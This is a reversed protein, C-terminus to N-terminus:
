EKQKKHIYKIKSCQMDFRVKLSDLKAKTLNLRETEEYSAKLEVRDQEVKDKLQNYEDSVIAILSDTKALDEQAQKLSVQQYLSLARKRADVDHPYTKRLSDITQFAKAYEKSEMQQTAENLLQDVKDKESSGCAALALTIAIFIIDIRKSM